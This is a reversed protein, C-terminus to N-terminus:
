HRSDRSHRLDASRSGEVVPIDGLCLYLRVGPLSTAAGRGILYGLRILSLTGVDCGRSTSTHHIM